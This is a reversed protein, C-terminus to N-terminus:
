TENPRDKQVADFLSAVIQDAADGCGFCEPKSVAKAMSLSNSFGETIRLSDAGVLINRGADVTELWETEDRMTICPVAFFYAEKQVGGSDTIISKANEELLVMDLFSIPELIEVKGLQGFLGLEELIKRTRPHLPFIVRAQESIAALGKVIEAMREPVDTNEARHCTVLVFEKATLSLDKLITSKEKAMDRYFLSADYMVDGVNLVGKGVGESKLNNVATDTPCFLRTSVREALMRNIEEPMKMNFSRLGAEV